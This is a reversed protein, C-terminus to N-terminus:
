YDSQSIVKEIQNLRDALTLTRLVHEPHREFNKGWNGITRPSLGTAESLIEICAKRFGRQKPPIKVWKQCYKWPTM